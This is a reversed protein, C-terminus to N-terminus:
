KKGRKNKVKKKTKVLNSNNSHPKIKMTSRRLWVGIMVLVLLAVVVTIISGADFLPKETKKPQPEFTTKVDITQEKWKTEWPHKAQVVARMLNISSPVMAMTIMAPTTGNTVNAVIGIVISDVSNNIEAETDTAVQYGEPPTISVNVEWPSDAEFLMPYIYDVDGEAIDDPIVEGEPVEILYESPIVNLESGVITGMFVAPVLKGWPTKIYDLHATELSNSVTLSPRYVSFDFQEPKVTWKIGCKNTCYKHNGERHDRKWWCHRGKKYPQGTCKQYCVREGHPVMQTTEFPSFVVYEGNPVGVTCQGTDDMECTWSPCNERIANLEKDKHSYIHSTLDKWTTTSFGYESAITSNGLVSNVCDLEYVDDEAGDRPEHGKVGHWGIDYINATTTIAGPCGHYVTGPTEPCYDVCDSVGDGDTDPQDDSDVYVTEFGRVNGGAIESHGTILNDHTYTGDNTWHNDDWEYVEFRDKHKKKVILENTGDNDIDFCATDGGKLFIGTNTSGTVYDWKETGSNWHYFKTEKSFGERTIILEPVGDTGPQGNSDLIDCAAVEYRGQLPLGDNTSHEYEVWSDGDWEYFWTNIDDTHRYKKEKVILEDQGDNDFDALGIENNGIVLDDPYYDNYFKWKSGTWDYYKSGGDGDCTNPDAANWSIIKLKGFLYGPGIPRSCSTHIWQIYSGIQFITEPKALNTVTFTRNVIPYMGLLNNKKDYVYVETANDDGIYKITLSHITSCPRCKHYKKDKEPKVLLQSTFTKNEWHGNCNQDINDCPIEMAGPHICIACEGTDETCNSPDSPCTIDTPDDSMDDDCDGSIDSYGIPLTLGSCVDLLEGTGYGDHDNDAYGKMLHWVNPDNDNCDPEVSSGNTTYTGCITITDNDKDFDEDYKGDCDNDIGDCLEVQPTVEDECVGWAGSTCIQTGGHCIGVGDTGKPGTYCYQTLPVPGGEEPAPQCSGVTESKWKCLSNSTCTKEDTYETCEGLGSDVCEKGDWKCYPDYKNCTAEDTFGSCDAYCTGGSGVWACFETTDCTGQDTIDYCNNYCRTDQTAQCVNVGEYLANNCEDTTTWQKCFTEIGSDYGCYERAPKVQWTCGANECDAETKYGTCDVAKYCVQQNPEWACTPYQSCTQEDELKKCEVPAVCSGTEPTVVWDCFVDSECSENDSYVSCEKKVPDCGTFKSAWTCQDSNELCAAEDNSWQKCDKPMVSTGPFMDVYGDCDDDIANCLEEAGPHVNANYDDCDDTCYSQFESPAEHPISGTYGDKDNDQCCDSDWIPYTLAGPYDPSANLFCNLDCYDDDICIPAGYVDIPPKIDSPYPYENYFEDKGSPSSTCTSSPKEACYGSITKYKPSCGMQNICEKENSVASCSLPEGTCGSPPSANCDVPTPQVTENEPICTTSQKVCISTNDSCVETCPAYYNVVKWKCGATTCSDEDKYSRCLVEEYCVGKDSDWACTSYSECSSQDTVESCDVPDECKALAKCLISTCPGESDCRGDFECWSYGQAICAYYSLSETLWSCGKQMLCEDENSFVSCHKAEGECGVYEPTGPYWECNPDNNCSTEDTYQSCGQCAPDDACDPDKCDILGDSDDDVGNDCIEQQQAPPACEHEPITNLLCLYNVPDWECQYYTNNYAVYANTCTKEDTIEKCSKSEGGYCEPLAANVTGIIFTVLMLGVVLALLSSSLKRKRKMMFVGLGFIFPLTFLNFLNSVKGKELSVIEKESLKVTCQESDMCGTADKNVTCQFGSKSYYNQCESKPNTVQLTSCDDTQTGSCEPLPCDEPCNNYDEYIECVDDGCIPSTGCDVLETNCEEGEAICTQRIYTEQHDSCAQDYCTIPKDGSCVKIQCITDSSFCAGNCWRCESTRECDYYPLEFCEIPCDCTGTTTGPFYSYGYGYQAASEVCEDETISGYCECSEAGDWKYENLGSFNNCFMKCDSDSYIPKAYCIDDSSTLICIGGYCDDDSSCSAGEICQAGKVCAGDQCILGEKSCDYQYTSESGDPNCAYEMLNNNDLCYDKFEKGSSTMVSGSTYYDIGEDTDKCSPAPCDSPCTTYDEGSECIGNGCVAPAEPSRPGDCVGDGDCDFTYDCVNPDGPECAYGLGDGDNDIQDPNYVDVCNDCADGLGDGDIDKQDPNYVKVCNDQDDPVGDGDTDEMPCQKPCINEPYSKTCTVDAGVNLASIDASLVDKERNNCMYSSDISVNEVDQGIYLGINNNSLNFRTMEINSSKGLIALGEDQHDHFKWDNLVLNSSDLIVAKNFKTHEYINSIRRKKYPLSPDPHVDSVFVSKRFDGQKINASSTLQVNNVDISNSIEQVKFATANDGDHTINLNEAILNRIYQALVPYSNDSAVDAIISYLELKNLNFAWVANGNGNGVIKINCNELKIDADRTQESFVKIAHADTKGTTNVTITHGECRIVAVAGPKLGLEICKDNAKIDSKLVWTGGNSNRITFCDSVEFTCAASGICAPDACDIKGNCDNDVGDDCVEAQTKVTYTGTAECFDDYAKVTCTGLMGCNTAFPYVFNGNQDSKITTTGGCSNELTIDSNPAFGSGSIKVTEGVYASSPSVLLSCAQQTCGKSCTVQNSDDDQLKDCTNDGTNGSTNASLTIDVNKNDCVFNSHIYNGVSDSIGIGYQNETINNNVLTNNSSVREISQVVVGALNNRLTNGAVTNGVGEIIIGYYVNNHAVNDTLNNNDGLVAIGCSESNLTNYSANNNRVNNYSSERLYIGQGSKQVTTNFITGYNANEWYVGYGYEIIVCNKITVNSHGTNEVGYGSGTGNLTTGNCTVVINDANIKIGNPLNYVGPCLVVSENILMGDTPVVCTPQPPASCNQSCTVQNNSGKDVLVDCKNNGSANAVSVSLDIDTPNYCVENTSLLTDLVCLKGRCTVTFIGEQGNNRIKNGIFQNGSTDGISLGFQINNDMINYTIQNNDGSMQLGVYNFVLSNADIRGNDGTWLVGTTYNKFECGILIVDEYENVLGIGCNSDGRLVTGEECKLVVSSSNIILVGDGNLDSLKYENQCILTEGNVYYDDSIKTVNDCGEMTNLDCCEPVQCAPDDACDPDECDILGDNDNDIGDDCSTENTSLPCPNICIGTKSSDVDCTTNIWTNNNGNDYVDGELGPSEPVVQYGNGCVFNSNLTNKYVSSIPGLVIGIYTNNTVNNNSINNFSAGGEGLMIGVVGDTIENNTVQCYQAGGGVFIASGGDGYDQYYTESVINNSIIVNSGVTSIGWHASKIKNNIIKTDNAYSSIGFPYNEVHINKVTANVGSERVVVGYIEVLGPYSSQKIISGGGDLVVNAGNIEIVSTNDGSLDRTYTKNCLKIVDNANNIYYTDGSKYMSGCGPTDGSGDVADLDCCEPTQCAPDDACDSDECDVLGDCDNDVTDNCTTEQIVKYRLTNTTCNSLKGTACIDCYCIANSIREGFEDIGFDNVTNEAYLCVNNNKDLGKITYSENPEMGSIRGKIAVSEPGETPSIYELECQVQCEPDDACDPDECDVLDDGDDDVGNTCDEVANAVNVVAELYVRDNPNDPTATVQITYNGKEDPAALILTNQKPSDTTLPSYSINLKGSVLTIESPLVNELSVNSQNIVAAIVEDLTFNEGPSVSDPFNIDLKIQDNSGSVLQGLIPNEKYGVCGALLLLTMLGFLGFIWFMKQKGDAM